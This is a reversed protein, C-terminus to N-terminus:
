HNRSATAVANLGINALISLEGAFNTQQARGRFNGTRPSLSLLPILRPLSCRRLRPRFHAPNEQNCAVQRPHSRAIISPGRSSSMPSLISRDGSPHYSGPSLPLKLSNQSPFRSLPQPAFRGHDLHSKLP